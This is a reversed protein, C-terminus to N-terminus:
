PTESSALEALRTLDLNERWLFYAGVIFIPLYVLAHLVIGYALALAADVGYLGLTLVCLYHFVGLRGPSSPVIIGINLIALLLPAATWPLHLNFAWFLILNTFIMLAWNFASWGWLQLNMRLSKLPRLSLAARRIVGTVGHRTFWSEAGVIRDLWGPLRDEWRSLATMVALAGVMGGSVILSSGKVWPPLPMFLSLILVALLLMLSDLAKELVITGFVYAASISEARSVLYARAVEGLRAPIAANVMQGIYIGSLLKGFRRARHDPYFLARWRIAKVVQTLLFLLLAAILLPVNAQGMARWMEGLNVRRFALWLFLVSLLTGVALSLNRKTFLRKTISLRGM